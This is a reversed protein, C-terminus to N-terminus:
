GDVDICIDGPCGVDPTVRLLARRHGTLGARDVARPLGHSRERARATARLLGSDRRAAHRALRRAARFRGPAPTREAAAPGAIALAALMAAAPTLRRANRFLWPELRAPTAPEGAVLRPDLGLRLLPVARGDVVAALEEATLGFARLARHPNRRFRRLLRRDRLLGEVARDLAENAM